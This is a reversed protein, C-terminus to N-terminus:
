GKHWNTLVRSANVAIWFGSADIVYEVLLSLIALGDFVGTVFFNVTALVALAGFYILMALAVPHRPSCFKAGNKLNGELVLIRFFYQALLVLLIVVGHALMTIAVTTDENFIDLMDVNTLRPGFGIHHVLYRAAPLLFSAVVTVIPAVIKEWRRGYFLYYGMVGFAGYLVAILLYYELQRPILVMWEKVWFFEQYAFDMFCDLATLILVALYPILFFFLLTKPFKSRTQM